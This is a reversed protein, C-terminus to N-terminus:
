VEGESQMAAISQPVYREGARDKHEIGIKVYMVWTALGLTLFFFTVIYKAQKLRKRNLKPNKGDFWGWKIALRYLGISGHVEVAILLILYLPAMWDTVMRDSSAYPGIEGPHTMIVYLHVSGLFLMIFGTVAQYYWLTTDSHKMRIMHTHFLKYQRFNSPFKRMALIAHLIFLFFIIGTFVMVIAPYSHGLIYEGEFFKAVTYMADKGLLITSVFIMHGWMFLALVLGTGSQLYDLWAPIKSKYLKARVENERTMVGQSEM